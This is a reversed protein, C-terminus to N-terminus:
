VWGIESIGLDNAGAAVSKDGAGGFLLQMNFNAGVAMREVSTLLVQEIDRASDILEFLAPGFGSLDFGLADGLLQSSSLSRLFV